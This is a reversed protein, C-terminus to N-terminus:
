GNSVVENAMREARATDSEILRLNDLTVLKKLTQKKAESINATNEVFFWKDFLKMWEEPSHISM